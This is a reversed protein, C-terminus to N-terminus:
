IGVNNRKTDSDYLPKNDMAGRDRKVSMVPNQSGSDGAEKVTVVHQRKGFKDKIRSMMGHGMVGNDLMDM